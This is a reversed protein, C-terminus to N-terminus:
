VLEADKYLPKDVGSAKAIRDGSCASPMMKMRTRIDSISSCVGDGMDRTACELRTVDRSTAIQQPWSADLEIM